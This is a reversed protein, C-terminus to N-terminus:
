KKGSFLTQVDAKQDKKDAHWKARRYQLYVMGIAALLSGIVELIRVMGAM